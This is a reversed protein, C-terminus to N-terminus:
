YPALGDYDKHGFGRGGALIEAFFDKIIEMAVMEPMYLLELQNDFTGHVIPEYPIFAEIIFILVLIIDIFLNQCTFWKVLPKRAFEVQATM